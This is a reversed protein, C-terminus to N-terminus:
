AASDWRSGPIAAVLRRTYDQEPARFIRAPTGSEVVRGKHMVLVEDCIQSAVRLDHTIFIMALHRVAQVQALLELIQAQISVDLASVAEDAILVEPDFMLARAIGVRQRQGGSFEHPFRDYASPDLGVQALIAAARARAESRVMGQAVPGVTLSAGVTQRPNLSAYPDQFVMQIRPRLPRFEAETLPLIDRGDLLIRGGDADTLKMLVKGMSSKGSGSEGVVGLTRGRRLEFGVDRVAPVVRTHGLFGSRSRYTKHLAEVRLIVPAELEAVRDTERLRPVAAILRRTYPHEPATLVQAAAGQEVLLGKEMVIVRDAIDAVVGFDHTIFMVSMGKRRQITRILELIQAQTTVDLATTPEDAILVDPDLALAIAIMVRQRQGGSLRFPYQHRLLPPDPLGIETLLDLVKATRKERDRWGHAALVEDIQAGVTMLPNLASLPDQFIMSLSRGRLARRAAEPMALLDRGAYLVQGGAVKMVAPLLGMVASATVSKGSGSEGIICLIEGRQLDFSVNEAAHRRDMERPLTVTLGRVSLVPDTM